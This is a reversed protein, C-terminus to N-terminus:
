PLVGVAKLALGAIAVGSSILAAAPLWPAWQRDRELKAAEADLKKREAVFKESEERLKRSESLDRDIRAHIAQAEYRDRYTDSM